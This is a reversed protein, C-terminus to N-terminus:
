RTGDPKDIRIGCEVIDIYSLLEEPYVYQLAVMDFESMKTKLSLNVQCKGMFLVHGM